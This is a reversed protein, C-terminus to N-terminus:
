TDVIAGISRSFTTADHTFQEVRSILTHTITLCGDEWDLYPFLLTTDVIQWLIRVIIQILQCAFHGSATEEGVEEVEISGKVLTICPTGVIGFAIHVLNSSHAAASAYKLVTETWLGRNTTTIQRERGDIDHTNGDFTHIHFILLSTDGLEKCFEIFLQFYSSLLEILTILELFSSKNFLEWQQHLTKPNTSVFQVRIISNLADDILAGKTNTEDAQCFTKYCQCSLMMTLAFLSLFQTQLNHTVHAVTGVIERLAILM